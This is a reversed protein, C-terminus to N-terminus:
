GLVERIRLGCHIAILYEDRHSYKFDPSYLYILLKKFDEINFSKVKETKITSQPMKIGYYGAFYDEEIFKREKAIGFAQKLLQYDKRM